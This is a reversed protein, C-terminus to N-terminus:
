LNEGKNDWLMKEIRRYRSYKENYMDTKDSPKFTQVYKLPKINEDLARAALIAAGAGAAEFTSPIMIELGTIDAIIQCWLKGKAGGGFLVIKNVNGYANMAELIIRIQFAVGEMVAAAFDGRSTALNIGYFMGQADAYFDPSSPGNMYPYFLLNCGNNIANLAEEDIVKYGEDKYMLDRLWRLCTGATNIVGETVWVGSDAYGCWGIKNGQSFDVTNWKKTVAGATGLSITMTEDDLGVGLAACKQDQAGVSVVCDPSLGLEQAVDPLINGACKGSWLIEPLMDEPIEFKETIEKSWKCKKLDYLLTGSAMSHDTVCNGTLKAILFDMPMLFKYTKDWVEKREDKFWILKPLTYYAELPKGCIEFIKEKGFIKDINLTQQKPRSDLWSIANYLPNLNKDVPVITIGQSSISISKISRADTGSKEIAKKATKLTLEWWLNADQEVYDDKPTILEYEEYSDGLLNLLSDFIISRCGTTGLDVSLYMQRVWAKQFLIKYSLKKTFKVKTNNQQVIFM